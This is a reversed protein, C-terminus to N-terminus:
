PGQKRAERKQRKARTSERAGYRTIGGNEEIQSTSERRQFEGSLTVTSGCAGNATFKTERSKQSEEVEECVMRRGKDGGLGREAEGRVTRSLARHLSHEISPWYDTELEEPM